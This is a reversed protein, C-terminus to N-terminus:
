CKCDAAPCSPPDHCCNSKCWSDPVSPTISHCTKSCNGGPPGPPKPPSLMCCAVGVHANSQLVSPSSIADCVLFVTAATGDPKNQQIRDLWPCRCLLYHEESCDTLKDGVGVETCVALITRKYPFCKVPLVVEPSFLLGRFVLGIFFLGIFLLGSFVAWWDVQGSRLGM